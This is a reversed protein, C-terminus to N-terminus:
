HSLRVSAGWGAAGKRLPRPGGRPARGSAHPARPRNRQLQQRQQQRREGRPQGGPVDHVAEDGGHRPLLELAGDVLPPPRVERVLLRDPRDGQRVDGLPEGALAVGLVDHLHQRMGDLARRERARLLRLRRQLSYLVLLCFSIGM